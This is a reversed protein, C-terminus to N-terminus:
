QINQQRINERILGMFTPFSAHVKKVLKKSSLKGQSKIKTGIKYCQQEERKGETQKGLSNKKLCLLMCLKRQKLYWKPLYIQLWVFAM